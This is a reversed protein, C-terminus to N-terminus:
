ESTAINECYLKPSAEITKIAKVPDIDLHIFYWLLGPVRPRNEEEVLKLAVKRSLHGARIQNSRFTDNETFGQMSYYIYNYFPVTGDDIRWTAKTDPSTEWGYEKRLTEVVTDENWGVYHYLYVFDLHMMYAVFYAFATDILSVNLYAPNKLFNLGYYSALKLKGSSALNHLVGEPSGERIGCHGWKFEENELQNGRSYIILKIGTRKMLEMAYYEAQKDGAMFLPVMGLDPKKLWALVNLRINRRKKAIDASVIIHEVGLQSILRAQNRRALDTVMAWDYTYAIPKRGLVNCIYHLGYSSDRGGSFPVICDAFPFDSHYDDLVTELNNKLALPKYDRCYNCVGKDDFSILPMTEPLICKKCRRLGLIAEKNSQYHKEVLKELSNLSKRSWNVTDPQPYDSEDVLKAWPKKEAKVITKGPSALDVIQRALTELEVAMLRGPDLRNIGEAEGYRRIFQRLSYYESTFVLLKDTFKAWYLSGTNTFLLLKRLEASALAMSMSGQLQKICYAVAKIGDGTKDLEQEFLRVAVETDVEYKRKLKPNQKWIESDNVIIGNHVAVTHEGSVPQNNHNDQLVGNTALRSHGLIAVTDDGYDNWLKQYEVDKTFIRAKHAQKLSCIRSSTVWAIGAAEKGRSESLEFLWSSYEKLEDASFQAGKTNIALGFIGCM